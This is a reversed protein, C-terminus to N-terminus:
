IEARSLHSIGELPDALVVAADSVRYLVVFHGEATDTLLAIAPLPLQDLSGPRANGCSAEFGHRVAVERLQVLHTGQLDIDLEDRLASVSLHSGYYQGVSALAAAGCDKSDHTFICPFRTKMMM